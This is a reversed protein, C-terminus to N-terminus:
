TEILKAIVPINEIYDDSLIEYFIGNPRPYKTKTEIVTEPTIIFDVPIDHREM